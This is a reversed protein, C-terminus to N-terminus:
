HLLAVSRGPLMKVVKKLELGILLSAMAAPLISSERILRDVGMEGGRLLTVIAREQENLGPHELAASAGAGDRQEPFLMEFHELLDRLETVVFAGDKILANPGLSAYSDIRGPVAFVSRGQEMAQTATIMAGSGKGAEVVLVGRSMGSVIRNRMPFTTRDPKRRFPFESIVAGSEAIRDALGGNEPPYIHDFGGGIVAMTRGKARLAGEHAATDVGLALGSLVCLGAKALGFSLKQACEIGYHTPHRTGVVAISQRDVPRLRGRVYLALPPDHIDRLAEPYEQDVPTVLQVGRSQAEAVEKVPDLRQRQELIARALVPGVGDVARLDADSAEFISTVSGLAEAMARVRVPGVRDMMNLAIYAERESWSVM